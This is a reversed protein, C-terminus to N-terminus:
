AILANISLLLRFQIYDMMTRIGLTKMQAQNLTSNNSKFVTKTYEFTLEQNLSRVAEFKDGDTEKIMQRIQEESAPVSENKVCM